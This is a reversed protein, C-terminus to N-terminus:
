IDHTTPLPYHTSTTPRPHPHPYIYHTFFLRRFFYFNFLLFNYFEHFSFRQTCVLGIGRRRPWRDASFLYAFGRICFPVLFANLHFIFSVRYVIYCRFCAMSFSSQVTKEWLHWCEHGLRGFHYKSDITVAFIKYVFCFLFSDLFNYKRVAIINVYITEGQSSINPTLGLVEKFFVEIWFYSIGWFQGKERGKRVIIANRRSLFDGSIM